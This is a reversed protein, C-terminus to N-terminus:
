NIMDRLTMIYQMMTEEHEQRTSLWWWDWINKVQRGRWLDDKVWSSFIPVLEDNECQQLM